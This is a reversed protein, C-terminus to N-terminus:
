HMYVHLVCQAENLYYSLGASGGPVAAYYLRYLNHYLYDKMANYTALDKLQIGFTEMKNAHAKAIQAQIYADAAISDMTQFYGNEKVFYNDETSTFSLGATMQLSITDLTHDKSMQAATLNLYSYNAKIYGAKPYTDTEGTTKFDGWTPDSFYWKGNIEVAIWRHAENKGVGSVTFARIGYRNLLLQYSKAYTECVGQGDVFAGVVSHARSGTDKNYLVNTALLEYLQKAIEYQDQNGSVKQMYSQIGNEVSTKLAVAESKPLTQLTVSTVKSGTYSYSYRNLIYFIEPHDMIIAQIITSIEADLNSQKQYQVSVRIGNELESDLTQISQPNSLGAVITDYAARQSANLVTRCYVPAQTVTTTGQTPTPTPTPAKTPTPTQVQIPTQTPAKTPTPTQVQVPTQTPEKTPAQTQVQVPTQTPTNTTPADTPVPSGVEVPTGDPTPVLVPASASPAQTPDTTVVGTPSVPAGTSQPSALLGCGSLVCVIALVWAILTLIRGNRM